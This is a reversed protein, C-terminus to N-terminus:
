LIEEVTIHCLYTEGPIRELLAMRSFVNQELLPALLPKKRADSFSAAHATAFLTCGSGAAFLLASIDDQCTIEDCLIVQPNLLRIAKEIGEKKSGGSVVDLLGVPERFSPPIIEKKEDIVAVRLPETREGRSFSAALARLLTTKGAGPKSILLTSSFGDFSSLLKQGFHPLIRPIRLNVSEFEEPLMGSLLKEEMCVGLRFGDEDVLFGEKLTDFYRYVTGHCFACVFSKIEQATAIIGKEAECPSGKEDLFLNGRFSTLSLPKERRLRVESIKDWHPFLALGGRIREPFLSLHKKM